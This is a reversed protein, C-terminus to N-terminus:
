PAFLLAGKGGLLVFYTHAADAAAHLLMGPIISGSKLALYGYLVSVFFFGPTVALLYGLGHSAHILTFVASTALIAFTPGIRELHSQMYGRFAAEEVVGSVVAGMILISFRIATTPYVSVDVPQQGGDALIWFIALGVHAGILGLITVLNGGSWAGPEPRWLRLHFRRFSSTARPWGLGGLWALMFLLWCSTVAAAWPIEPNQRANLPASLLWPIIGFVAIALGMLTAVVVTKGVKPTAGKSMAAVETM